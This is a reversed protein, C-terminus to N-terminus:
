FDPILTAAPRVRQKAPGMEWTPSLASLTLRSNLFPVNTTPTSTRNTTYVSSRSYKMHSHDGLAPRYHNQSLAALSNRQSHAHAHGSHAQLLFFGAGAGPPRQDQVGLRKDQASTSASDQLPSPSESRQVTRTLVVLASRVQDLQASTMCVHETVAERHRSLVQELLSAGPKVDPVLQELRTLGQELETLRNHSSAEFGELCRTHAKGLSELRAHEAM